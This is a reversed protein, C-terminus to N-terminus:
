ILDRLSIEPKKKYKEQTSYNDHGDLRLSRRTISMEDLSIMSQLVLSPNSSLLIEISLWLEYEAEIANNRDDPRNRFTTMIFRNTSGDM